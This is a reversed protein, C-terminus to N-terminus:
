GVKRAGAYEQWHQRQRRYEGVDARPGRCRLHDPRDLRRVPAARDPVAPLRHLSQPIRDDLSLGVAQRPAARHGACGQRRWPGAPLHRRLARVAPLCDASHLLRTAILDHPDESLRRPDPTRHRISRSNGPILVGGLLEAAGNLGKGIIGIQFIRDLWDHPRFMSVERGPTRSSQTLPARCVRTPSCMSGSNASRSRTAPDTLAPIGLLNRSRLERYWRRLRDLSQDEEEFEALTYKGIREEHDLEALYKDCDARVGVVGATSCRYVAAGVPSRGRQFSRGCGPGAHDM